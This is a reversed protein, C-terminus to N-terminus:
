RYRVVIFNVESDPNAAKVDAEIADVEEGTYNERDPHKIIHLLTNQPKTHQELREIRNKKDM